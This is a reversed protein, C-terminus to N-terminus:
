LIVGKLHPISRVIIVASETGLMIPGWAYWSGLLIGVCATIAITVIESHHDDGARRQRVFAFLNFVLVAIDITLLLGVIIDLLQKIGDVLTNKAAEIGDIVAASATPVAMVALLATMLLFLLPKMPQKKMLIDEKRFYYPLLPIAAAQASM